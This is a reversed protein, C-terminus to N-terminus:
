ADEPNLPIMAWTVYTGIPNWILYPLLLVFGWVSIPLVSLALIVGLISGIIGIAVGVKLSRTRFMVFTYALIALEVVLYFGMLFWSRDSGPDAEWVNYASWVGCILIFTWIFPIAAEFTLWRPRRLSNFWRNKPTLAGGILAVVLAVGGIAMWSKLM